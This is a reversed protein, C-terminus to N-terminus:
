GELMCTEVGKVNEHTANIAKGYGPIFTDWTVNGGDSKLCSRVGDATPSYTGTVASPTNVASDSRGGAGEKRVSMGM